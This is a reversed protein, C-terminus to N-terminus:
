GAARGPRLRALLWSAGDLMERREQAKPYILWLLGLFIASVAADLLLQLIIGGAFMQRMACLAVILGFMIGLASLPFRVRHVRRALVFSIALYIAWTALTALAAGWIGLGPILAANLGLNIAACLFAISGALGSGIDILLMNRFFDGIERCLYGLVLVPILLAPPDYSAPVLLRLVDTGFFAIGGAVIGAALVFYRGVRVFEAQWGDKKAFHYLSVDWAKAFSDGIVVSLLMAFNYAMSYIGVDAHSVRALFLRDSFHITFYSFSSIVLPGAFRIIARALRPDLALGVERIAGALLFMSGLGAVILKSSIFGWVGFGMIGIFCINLGVTCFTNVLLYALVFGARGKIRAHVLAIEQVYGLFMGAFGARLLAENGALSALRAIPGALGAALGALLSGGGLLLLVATSIARNRGAEDPQDHYIRALSEGISQLGFVISVISTALEVLNVIGYQEPSLFHAYFPIMAFGIARSAVNAMLYFSSERLLRPKHPPAALTQDQTDPTM